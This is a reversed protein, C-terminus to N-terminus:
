LTLYWGALALFVSIPACMAILCIKRRAAERLEGQVRATREPFVTFIRTEVRPLIDPTHSAIHEAPQASETGTSRLVTGHATRFDATVTM